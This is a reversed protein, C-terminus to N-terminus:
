ASGIFNLAVPEPPAQYRKTVFFPDTKFQAWDAELKKKITTFLKAQEDDFVIQKLMAPNQTQLELIREVTYAYELMKACTTFQGCAVVDQMKNIQSQDFWLTTPMTRASEAIDNLKECGTLLVDLYHASGPAAASGFKVAFKRTLVAKRNQVNFTSLEYIVNFVRRNEWIDEGYFNGFFTDFILRRNQKLNVELVISLVSNLRAKGMQELVGLPAATIYKLFLGIAEDSFDKLAPITRKIRAPADDGTLKLTAPLFAALPRNFLLRRILWLAIFAIVAITTIVLVIDFWPGPTLWHMAALAMIGLVASAAQLRGTLRYKAPFFNRIGTSLLGDITEKRLPGATSLVPEQYPDMFYSAVDTVFLLDFGNSPDHHRRRSDALMASYVGENDDVGGDMLGVDGPTKVRQNNYDTVIFADQLADKDLAPGNPESWTFDKPLLIPEFGAPFCSSSAMIDGLRVQKLTAQHSAKFKDFFLYKNGTLGATNPDTSAQWRFSLGRYFETSNFCVEIHRTTTEGAEPWYVGFTEHGFLNQDYIKAFANIFNRSKEGTWAADKNILTLVDTLLVQGNLFELLQRYTDEFPINKRVHMSYLIGAFTGGSASSIFEVNDLLTKGSEPYDLQHLYSMAGLSFSAARYGGGSLAMAIKKFPTTLVAPQLQFADLHEATKLPPAVPTAAQETETPM